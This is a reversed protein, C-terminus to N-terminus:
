FSMLLFQFDSSIKFEMHNVLISLSNIQSAKQVSIFNFENIFIEEDLRVKEHLVNGHLAFTTKFETWGLM